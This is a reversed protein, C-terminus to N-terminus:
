DDFVFIKKSSQSFYVQYSELKFIKFIYLKNKNVTNNTRIPRRWISIYLNNIELVFKSYMRTIIQSTGLVGFVIQFSLRFFLLPNLKREIQINDELIEM